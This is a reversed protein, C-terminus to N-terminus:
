HEEVYGTKSRQVWILIGLIMFAGISDVMLGNTPFSEWGIAAFVKFDFISGSGFLERFFAVALIIWAYGFGSGLGDLISDYPKNAMAFAELRGMVICNTIILGVYAGLVKYMDYSYAKLVESVLTVLTAIVALQVIIRVRNPILNRMVSIILNAFVIVFVVAISMVLTPQMKVTVALASCIGLVQVTIPNDENLPDAVIRKRRKSLLAEAPKKIEQTVEEVTATEASM